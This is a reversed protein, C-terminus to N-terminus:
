DRLYKEAFQFCLVPQYNKLCQKHGKLNVPVINDKKWELAVSGTDICQNIKIM